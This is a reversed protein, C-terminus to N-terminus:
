KELRMWNRPLYRFPFMKPSTYIHMWLSVFIDRDAKQGSCYQLGFEDSGTRIPPVSHPSSPGSHGTMASFFTLDAIALTAGSLYDDIKQHLAAQRGNRRTSLQIRRTRIVHSSIIMNTFSPVCCRFMLLLAELGYM